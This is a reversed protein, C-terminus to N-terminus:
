VEAEATSMAPLGADNLRLSNWTAHMGVHPCHPPRCVQVARVAKKMMRSDRYQNSEYPPQQTFPGPAYQPAYNAHHMPMAAPATHQYHEPQPVLPVGHHGHPGAGNPALHQEVYVPGHPHHAM